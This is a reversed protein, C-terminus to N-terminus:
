WKDIPCHAAAIRAKGNMHCGCKTCRAQSHDYFECSHCIALRREVEADDALAFGSAAFDVATAAANVVMSGFSPYEPVNDHGTREFEVADPQSLRHEAHTRRTPEDSDLWSKMRSYLAQNM